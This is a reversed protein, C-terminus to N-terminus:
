RIYGDWHYGAVVANILWVMVTNHGNTTSCGGGTVMDIKMPTYCPSHDVGWQTHVHAMDSSNAQRSQTAHIIAFVNTHVYTYWTLLTHLQGTHDYWNYRASNCPLSWTMFVSPSDVMSYSGGTIMGIKHTHLISYPGCGMAYTHLDHWFHKDKGTTTMVINIFVSAHLIDDQFYVAATQQLVDVRLSRVWKCPHTAPIITWM